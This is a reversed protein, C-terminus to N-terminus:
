RWGREEQRAEEAEEADALDEMDITGHTEHVNVMLALLFASVGFTIVIATLALAQVLPDAAAGPVPHGTPNMTVADAGHAGAGVDVTDVGAAVLFLVAANSLLVTGVIIRVLDRSVMLYCGAGFVIAVAAAILLIM